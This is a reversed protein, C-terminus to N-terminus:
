ENVTSRMQVIFGIIENAPKIKNVRHIRYYVGDILAKDGMEPSVDYPMFLKFDSSLIVAGDVFYDKYLVKLCQCSYSSEPIIIDKGDDGIIATSERKFDVTFGNKILSVKFRKASGSYNM